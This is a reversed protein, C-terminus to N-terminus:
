RVAPYYALENLPEMGGQDVFIGPTVALLDRLSIDSLRAFGPGFVGIRQNRDEPAGAAATGHVALGIAAFSPNLAVVAAVYRAPVPRCDMRGPWPAIRAHELALEELVGDVMLQRLQHGAALHM